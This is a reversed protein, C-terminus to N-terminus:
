KGSQSTQFRAIARLEELSFQKLSEAAWNVRPADNGNTYSIDLLIFKERWKVVVRYHLPWENNDAELSNRCIETGESFYRGKETEQFVRGLDNFNDRLRAYGREAQRFRNLKERQELEEKVDKTDTPKPFGEKELECLTAYAAEVEKKLRDRVEKYATLTEPFEFGMWRMEEEPTPPPPPVEEAPQKTEIAPKKSGTFFEVFKKWM